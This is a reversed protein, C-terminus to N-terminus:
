FGLPIPRAVPRAAVIASGVCNSNGTLDILADTDLIAYGNNYGDLRWFMDPNGLRTKMATSCNGKALTTADEASGLIGDWVALCAIEGDFTRDRTARNAIYFTTGTVAIGNAGAAKGVSAGDVWLASNTHDNMDIVFLIHQWVNTSYANNNSRFNTGASAFVLANTYGSNDLYIVYRSAGGETELVRGLGAEGASDPNMWFSITLTTLTPSAGCTILTDTGDAEVAGFLGNILVFCLVLLTLFKM